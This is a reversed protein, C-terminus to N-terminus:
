FLHSWCFCPPLWGETSLRLLVVDWISHEDKPGESCPPHQTVQTHASFLLSAPSPVPFYFVRPVPSPVPITGDPSSSNTPLGWQERCSGSLLSSHPPHCINKEPSFHYSTLFHGWTTGPSNLNCIPSFKKMCLITLCQILSGWATTSDGDSSANLLCTDTASLSM